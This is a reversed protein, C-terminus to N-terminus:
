KAHQLRDPRPDAPDLDPWDPAISPSQLANMHLRALMGANRAQRKSTRHATYEPEYPLIFPQNGNRPM